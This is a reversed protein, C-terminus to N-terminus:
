IGDKSLYVKNNTFVGDFDFIVADIAEPLLDNLNKM